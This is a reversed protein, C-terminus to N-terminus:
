RLISQYNIQGETPFIFLPIHQQDPTVPEDDDQNRGDIPGFAGNNQLWFHLRAQFTQEATMHPGYFPHPDSGDTPPPDEGALPVDHIHTNWEEEDNKVFNTENDEGLFYTKRVIADRDHNLLSAIEQRAVRRLHILIPMNSKAIASDDHCLPPTASLAM